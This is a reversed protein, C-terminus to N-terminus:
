RQGETLTDLQFKGTEDWLWVDSYVHAGLNTAIPFPSAARILRETIPVFDEDSPKRRWGIRTVNGRADLSIDVFGVAPINPPLMGKYIKDAHKSYLHRAAIKRYELELAALSQAASPAPRSSSAPAPASTPTTKCGSLSLAMALAALLMVLGGRWVAGQFSLNSQNM